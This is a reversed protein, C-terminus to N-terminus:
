GKYDILVTNVLHLESWIEDTESNNLLYNELINLNRLDQNSNMVTPHSEGLQNKLSAKLHHTNEAM